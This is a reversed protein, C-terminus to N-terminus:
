RDDKIPFASFGVLVNYVEMRKIQVPDMGPDTASAFFWM